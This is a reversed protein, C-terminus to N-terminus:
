KPSTKAELQFTIFEDVLPTASVEFAKFDETDFTGSPRIIRCNIAEGSSRIVVMRLNNIKHYVIDGPKFTEEAM